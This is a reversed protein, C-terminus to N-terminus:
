KKKRQREGRRWNFTKIHRGKKGGPATKRRATEGGKRKADTTQNRYPKLNAEWRKPCSKETRGGRNKNCGAKERKAV